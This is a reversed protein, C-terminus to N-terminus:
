DGVTDGSLVVNLRRNQPGGDLGGLLNGGLRLHSSNSERSAAATGEPM